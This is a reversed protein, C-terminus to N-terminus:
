EGFNEGEFLRFVQIRWHKRGGVNEAIRYLHQNLYHLNLVLCKKGASNNVVSLLSCIHSRDSVKRICRNVLLERLSSAM